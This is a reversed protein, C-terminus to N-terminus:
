GQNESSYEEALMQYISSTRTQPTAGGLKTLMLRDKSNELDNFFGNELTQEEMRTRGFLSTSGGNSGTFNFIKSGLISGSGEPAFNLGTGARTRGMSVGSRKKFNDGNEAVETM